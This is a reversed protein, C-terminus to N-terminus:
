EGDETELDCECGHDDNNEGDKDDATEVEQSVFNGSRDYVADTEVGNNMFVAVYNEGDRDFWITSTANPYAADFKSALGSPLSERSVTPCEKDKHGWEMKDCSVITFLLGAFVFGKKM